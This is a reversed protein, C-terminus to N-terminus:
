KKSPVEECPIERRHQTEDSLASPKSFADLAEELTIPRYDWVDVGVNVFQGFRRFLQHVHACFVKYPLNEALKRIIPNDWTLGRVSIKRKQAEDLLVQMPNHILFIREGGHDIELSNHVKLIGARRYDGADIKDHNGRVLATRGVPKVYGPITKRMFVLDGLWYVTDFPHIMERYPAMLGRAMDELSNFPRACYRLINKHEFHQDASLWIQSSKRFM